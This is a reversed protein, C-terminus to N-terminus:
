RRKVSKLSEDPFPQNGTLLEFCVMGFSFVDRKFPYTPGKVDRSISVQSKVSDLNIIEPPM